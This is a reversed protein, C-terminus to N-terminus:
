ISGQGGTDLTSDPPGQPVESGSVVAGHRLKPFPLESYQGSQNLTGLSWLSALIYRVPTLYIRAERHLPTLQLGGLYPGGGSAGLEGAGSTQTVLNDLPKGKLSDRGVM